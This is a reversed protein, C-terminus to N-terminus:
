KNKKMTYLRDAGMSPINITLEGDKLSKILMTFVVKGSEKSILELTNGFTKYTGELKNLGMDMKFSTDENFTFSMEPSSWSGYLDKKEFNACAVFLLASLCFLLLYRM